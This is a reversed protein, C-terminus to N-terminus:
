GKKGEVGPNSKVAQNPQRKTGAEKKTKANLKEELEKVLNELFVFDIQSLPGLRAAIFDVKAQLQFQKVFEKVDAVTLVANHTTQYRKMAGKLKERLEKQRAESLAEKEQNEIEEVLDDEEEFYETM